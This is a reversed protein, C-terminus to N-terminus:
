TNITEKYFTEMKKAQSEWSFKSATSRGSAAFKTRLDASNVLQRLAHTLAQVDGPSVLFGNEGDNIYEEIADIRTSVVPVGSAMAELNVLGLSEHYSPLCFIDATAYYRHIQDHPVSGLFEVSDTIGLRDVNSQLESKLTGDGVLYLKSKNELNSQAKILDHLGKGNDLRGVYLIVINDEDFIPEVEPNFQELDVGAYVTGDSEFNLWSRLRDATSKSNVLYTDTEALRLMLKWRISPQKIGPFRFLSPINVKRSLLINDLYYHTSFVDVEQQLEILSESYKANLFMSLSEIEAPLLPTTKALFQNFRSEKSWFSIKTINIDFNQVEEILDGDGCYLYLEHKHQLREIIERLFTETGGSRTIGVRPNYIGIKM